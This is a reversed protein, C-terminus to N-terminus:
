LKLQKKIRLILAAEEGSPLQSWERGDQRVKVKKKRLRVLDPHDGDYALLFLKAQYQENPTSRVIHQDATKGKPQYAQEAAQFRQRRNAAEWNM